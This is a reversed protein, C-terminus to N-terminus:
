KTLEAVITHYLGDIVFTETFRVGQLTIEINVKMMMMEGFRCMPGGPLPLHM